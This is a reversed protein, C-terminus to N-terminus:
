RAVPVRNGHITTHEETSYYNDPPTVSAWRARSGRLLERIEILTARQEARIMDLKIVANALPDGAEAARSIILAKVYTINM